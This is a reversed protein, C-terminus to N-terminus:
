LSAPHSAKAKAQLACSTTPTEHVLDDWAGEVIRSMRRQIRGRASAQHQSLGCCFQGRALPITAAEPARISARRPEVSAIRGVGVPWHHGVRDASAHVRRAVQCATGAQLKTAANRKPCTTCNHRHIVLFLLAIQCCTCVMLVQPLVGVPDEEAAAPVVAAKKVLVSLFLGSISAAM